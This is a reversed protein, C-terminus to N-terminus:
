HFRSRSRSRKRKEGAQEFKQGCASCWRSSKELQVLEELRKKEEWIKRLERSRADMKKSQLRVLKRYNSNLNNFIKKCFNIQSEIHRWLEQESMTVEIDIEIVDEPGHRM